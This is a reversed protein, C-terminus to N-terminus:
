LGLDFYHNLIFRVFAAFTIAFVSIGIIGIPKQYWNKKTKTPEKSEPIETDNSSDIFQGHVKEFKTNTMAIEVDGSTKIADKCEIVTVNDLTLKSAM